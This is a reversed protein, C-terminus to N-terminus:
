EQSAAEGHSEVVTGILPAIPEDLTVASVRMAERQEALEDMAVKLRDKLPSGMFGTGTPILRGIIINEKLGDLADIKGTVAANILVKATEMFSAASLLSQTSLSVKSIGLFMTNGKASTGGEKEVKANEILFQAREIVEGPLFGTTGPETIYVRSFMQRIIVEIHKDRLKQGQGAYIAQIEKLIEFAVAYIGKLEFLQTLDVSGDTINQGIQIVDGEKVLIRYGAPILYEKKGMGAYTLRVIKGEIAVIGSEPAVIITGDKKEILTTGAKVSGEEVKVKDGRVVAFEDVITDKFSIAVIKQNPKSELVKAGTGDEVVRREGASISVTGEVDAIFAKRKPQRAEFLEEVRPLGRTIDEGGAVGGTHFTRMTLQTGPEGISQAAIVGVATGLGVVQNNSHDFGYCKQCVGKPLKCTLISRYRVSDLELSAIEQRKKEDVVEGAEVIVKKGDKIPELLFRGWVRSALKDGMQDSIEKTITLGETDGCDVQHVIVDQSVDVLRRTLYGANATKLATDTLGKRSGHTSIFFEIVDFGEKFSGKVPLEIIDGGPNSVLGKMGIVQTLQGWTGRAGSEIMGFVSSDKSVHDRVGKVIRNKIEDWVGIVKLHRETGTLLGENFQDEIEAIRRDGEALLEAKNEVVTFDEMGLSHGSKTVYRFGLEKIADLVEVAREHGITEMSYHIIEGLHKSGVEANYYPFEPGFISNFIVRGVTTTIVPSTINKFKSTDAFKVRIKDQLGIHRLRYAMLAEEISSFAKTEKIDKEEDRCHTLYFSGWAIDQKPTVIPAGNAPRLLNKKASMLNAAEWRAEDTLPVHVAMQDGDFDANFATCVLPHIRIAKGEILKPRFAQIGLRHLTPARNLLVHTSSTVEELIDWVEARGSEIVKSASRINHAIGREIIKGMIFPKFLELAMRKPLGCEDLKLYPGVVIVSRGSYDTRKGLLNQRFRGQKGKLSDAISRLQRKQGAPSQVTKTHRASNDFLADVAEQLMRKENRVIIEPANLERLRILRNNRNIVRRYLDNVDSTAYRGGDLAVMPRLDPPTVPIVDLILWEPKIQRRIFSKILQARRMVKARKTDPATVIEKELKQSEAELDIRSLLLKIAEAGISADFLHGFRLSLEQYEHETLLRNQEISKLQKEAEIFEGDLNAYKRDREDEAERSAKKDTGAAALSKDSENQIQKRKSKYESKLDELLANRMEKNVDTIIFNAFYVVKEVNQMSMDLVLGIKSPISRLFWIHTVPAALNIHGMRERRVLSHTVEVGCKDCTIGKYRIKRYKGCYCEWDKTPGFIEEAFLGGKEPKQTRYNITEPKTVEGFSWGRIVDPSAITIRLADFDALPKTFM